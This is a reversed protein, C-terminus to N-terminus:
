KSKVEPALQVSNETFMWIGKRTSVTYRWQEGDWWRDQISGISKGMGTPVSVRVSIEFKPTTKTVRSM